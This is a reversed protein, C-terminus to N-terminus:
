ARCTKYTRCRSQKFSQKIFHGTRFHSITIRSNSFSRITFRSNSFSQKRQVTTQVTQQITQQVTQQVTQKVTLQTTQQVRHLISFSITNTLLSLIQLIRKHLLTSFTAIIHAINFVFNYTVTSTTFFLDQSMSFNLLMLSPYMFCSYKGDM